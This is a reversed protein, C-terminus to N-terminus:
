PDCPDWADSSTGSTAFGPSLMHFCTMTGVWLTIQGKAPLAAPTSEYVEQCLPGPDAARDLMGDTGPRRGSAGHTHALGLARGAGPSVSLLGGLPWARRAFGAKMWDLNFIPPVFTIVQAYAMAYAMQFLGNLGWCAALDIWAPGLLRCATGPTM